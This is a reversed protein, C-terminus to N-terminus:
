KRGLVGADEASLGHYAAVLLSPWLLVDILQSLVGFPAGLGTAGGILGLISGLVAVLVYYGLVLLGFTVLHRRVLEWARALAAHASREELIVVPM